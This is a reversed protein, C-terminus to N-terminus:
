GYNKGIFPNKNNNIIQMKNSASFGLLNSVM